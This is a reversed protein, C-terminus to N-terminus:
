TRQGAARLADFCLDLAILRMASRRAKELHLRARSISASQTLEVSLRNKLTQMQILTAIKKKLILANKRAFHTAARNISLPHPLVHQFPEPV